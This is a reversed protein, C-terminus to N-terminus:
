RSESARFHLSKIQGDEYREVYVTFMNADYQIFTAALMAEAGHTPYVVLEVRHTGSMEFRAEM